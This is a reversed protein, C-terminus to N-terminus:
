LKTLLYVSELIINATIEASSSNQVTFDAFSQYLPLRRMYMEELSGISLPRGERALLSIDREIFVIIGNRKLSAYNEKETVCGGGAAIVLDSKEGINKIVRRELKRFGEEGEREFIEPISLGTEEEVVNDSDVFVRGSIEAIIHAVSTKGSGPMGILVINKM